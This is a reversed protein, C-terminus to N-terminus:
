GKGKKRREKGETATTGKGGEANGRSKGEGGICHGKRRGPTTGRGKRM